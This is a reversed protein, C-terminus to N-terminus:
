CNPDKIEVTIDSLIEIDKESSGDVLELQFNVTGLALTASELTDIDITFKGLENPTVLTGTFAVRADSEDLLCITPTLGTLDIPEKTTDDYLYFTLSNVDEGRYITLTTKQNVTSKM